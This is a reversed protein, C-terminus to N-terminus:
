NQRSVAQTLEQVDTRLGQLETVIKRLQETITALHTDHIGSDLPHSEEDEYSM